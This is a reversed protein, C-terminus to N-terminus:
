RILRGNGSASSTSYRVKPALWCGASSITLQIWLEIQFLMTALPNIGTRSRLLRLVMASSVDSLGWSGTKPRSRWGDPIFGRAM